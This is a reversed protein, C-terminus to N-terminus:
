KCEGIVAQHEFRAAIESVAEKVANPALVKLEAALAPPTVASLAMALSILVAGRSFSHM